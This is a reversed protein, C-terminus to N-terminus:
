TIHFELQLHLKFIYEIIRNNVNLIEGVPSEQEVLPYQYSKSLSRSLKLLKFLNLFNPCTLSTQM